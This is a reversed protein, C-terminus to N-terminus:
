SNDGGWERGCKNCVMEEPVESEILKWNGKEDQDYVAHSTGSATIDTSGCFPCKM